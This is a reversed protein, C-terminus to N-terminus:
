LHPALTQKNKGFLNVNLLENEENEETGDIDKTHQASVKSLDIPM